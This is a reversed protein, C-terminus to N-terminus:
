YTVANGSYKVGNTKFPWTDKLQFSFPMCFIMVWSMSLLQTNQAGDCLIMKFAWSIVISGKGGLSFCLGELMGLM